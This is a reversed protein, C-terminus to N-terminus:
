DKGDGGNGSAKGAEPGNFFGIDPVTVTHFNDGNYENLYGGALGARYVTASATGAVFAVGIALAAGIGFSRLAKRMGNRISM